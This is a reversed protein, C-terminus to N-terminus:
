HIILQVYIRISRHCIPDIQYETTALIQINSKM